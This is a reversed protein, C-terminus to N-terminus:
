APIQYHVRAMPPTGYPTAPGAILGSASADIPNSLLAFGDASGERWMQGFVRNVTTWAEGTQRVRGQSIPVIPSTPSHSAAAVPAFFLHPRTEDAEVGYTFIQVHLIEAGAPIEGTDLTVVSRRDAGWALLGDPQAPYSTAGTALLVAMDTRYETEFAAAPSGGTGAAQITGDPSRWYLRGDALSIWLNTDDGPSGNVEPVRFAKHTGERVARALRRMAAVNVDTPVNRAM